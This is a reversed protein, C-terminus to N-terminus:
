RHESALQVLSPFSEGNTFDCIDPIIYFICSTRPIINYMHTADYTPHTSPIASSVLVEERLQTLPAALGDISQDM